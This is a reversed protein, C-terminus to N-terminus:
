TRQSDQRQKRPFDQVRKKWLFVGLEDQRKALMVFRKESEVMNQEKECHSQMKGAAGLTEM